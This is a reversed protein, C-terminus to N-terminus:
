RCDVARVVRQGQITEGKKFSVKCAKVGARLPRALMMTTDAYACVQWIATDAAFAFVSEGKEEDEKDPALSALQDPPGDFFRVSVLPHDSGENESYTQWGAPKSSLAQKTRVSAPCTWDAALAPAALAALLVAPRLIHM